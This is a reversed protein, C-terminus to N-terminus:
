EPVCLAKGPLHLTLWQWTDSAGPEQADKLGEAASGGLVIRVKTKPTLHFLFFGRSSQGHHRWGTWLSERPSIGAPSDEEGGRPHPSKPVADQLVSWLPPCGQWTGWSGADQSGTRPSRLSAGGSGLHVPGLTQPLLGAAAPDWSVPVTGPGAEGQSSKAHLWGALLGLPGCNCINM